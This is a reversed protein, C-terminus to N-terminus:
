APDRNTVCVIHQERLALYKVGEREFPEAMRPNFLVTDGPQVTLEERTGDDGIGGPGVSLVVAEDRDGPDPVIVGAASTTEHVLREAVIYDLLPEFGGGNVRGIIHEERLVCYDVNNYRIVQGKNRGFVIKEGACVSMPRRSKDPLQKGPGVAVVTGVDREDANQREPDDNVHPIVLGSALVREQANVTCMVIDGIPRFPVKM